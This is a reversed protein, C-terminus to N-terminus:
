RASNEVSGIIQRGGVQTLRPASPMERNRGLLFSKIKGVGNSWDPAAAIQFPV